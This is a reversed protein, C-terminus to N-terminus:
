LLALFAVAIMAWVICSAYFLFVLFPVVIALCIAAVTLKLLDFLM